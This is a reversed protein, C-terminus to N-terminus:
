ALVTLEVRSRFEASVVPAAAVMVAVPVEAPESRVGVFFRLVTRGNELTLESEHWHLAPRGDLPTSEDLFFEGAEMQPHGEDDVRALWGPCADAPILLELTVDDLRDGSNTLEVHLFGRPDYGLEAHLRERRLLRSLFVMPSHPRRRATEVGATASTM